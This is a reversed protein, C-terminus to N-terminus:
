DDARYQEPEEEHPYSAVVHVEHYAKWERALLIADRMITADVLADPIREELLADEVKRLYEMAQNMYAAFESM